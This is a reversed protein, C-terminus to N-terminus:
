SMGIFDFHMIRRTENNIGQCTMLTIQPTASYASLVSTQDPSVTVDGSYTYNFVHGNTTRVKLLDGTVLDKVPALVADTNHGYIFTNGQKNNPLTTITAFHAATDSLTWSDDATNYDGDLVALDIGLRKITIQTPQGTIIEAPQKTEIVQYTIAAPKAPTAYQHLIWGTSIMVIYLSVVKTILPTKALTNKVMSM